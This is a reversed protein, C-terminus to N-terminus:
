APQPAAWVLDALDGSGYEDKLESFCSSFPESIAKATISEIASAAGINHFWPLNMMAPPASATKQTPRAAATFAAARRRLPPSYFATRGKIEALFPDPRM